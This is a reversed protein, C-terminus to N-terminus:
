FKSECKIFAQGRMKGNMVKIDLTKTGHSEVINKLDIEKLGKHLNKLYLISTPSGPDYNEFKALKKIEGVELKNKSIEETTCNQNKPDADNLKIIKGNKITYYNLPKKCGYIKKNEIQPVYEPVKLDWKTGPRKKTLDAVKEPEYLIIPSTIKKHLSRSKRRIKKININCGLNFRKREIEKIDDM